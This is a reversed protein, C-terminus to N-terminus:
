RAVEKGLGALAKTLHELAHELIACALQAQGFDKRDAAKELALAADLAAPAAFNGVSGKLAHAARELMKADQRAIAEHIASLMRPCEVVFLAAMEALLENDGELRALAASWSLTERPGPPAIPAAPRGALAQIVEFLEQLRIPKPVYGDMGADLCRERDGKMAHATMAIIPIHAGTVKEKQRIAATTEIGDMEPMQVDMLVLDFTQSELLSLAERGNAAVGVTNGRKELIQTVLRQNVPNDEAVLIRFGLAAPSPERLSDRAPLDLPGTEEPQTSLAALIAKQLEWQRIPKTLWAGVGLGRCRAVDAGQGGASPLMM